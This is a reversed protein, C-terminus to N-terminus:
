HHMAGLYKYVATYKYRWQLAKQVILSVSSHAVILFSFPFFIFYFSFLFFFFLWTDNSSRYVSISLIQLWYTLGKKWFFSWVTICFELPVIFVAYNAGRKGLVTWNVKLNKWRSTLIQFFFVCCQRLFTFPPSQGLQLCFGGFSFFPFSRTGVLSPMKFLLFLICILHSTVLSM